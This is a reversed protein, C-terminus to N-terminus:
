MSELLHSAYQNNTFDWPHGCILAQLSRENYTKNVAVSNIVTM